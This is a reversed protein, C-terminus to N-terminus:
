AREMRAFALEITEVLVGDASADLLGYHLSAPRAETFRWAFIPGLDAGVMTVTVARRKGRGGRTEEWWDHFTRDASAARRLVLLPEVDYEPQAPFRPLIVQSITSADIGKGLDVRFNRALAPRQQPARAM